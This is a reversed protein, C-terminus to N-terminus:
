GGQRAEVANFVGSWFKALSREVHTKEPSLAKGTALREDPWPEACM